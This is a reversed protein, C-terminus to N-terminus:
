VCESIIESEEKGATSWSRLHGMHLFINVSGRVRDQRWVKQRAQRSVWFAVARDVEESRRQWWHPAGKVGGTISPTPAQVQLGKM